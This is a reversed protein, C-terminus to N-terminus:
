KPLFFDWYIKRMRLSIGIMDKKLQSNIRLCFLFDSKKKKKISDLKSFSNIGM